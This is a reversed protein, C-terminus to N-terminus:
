ESFICQYPFYNKLAIKKLGFKGSIYEGIDDVIFDRILLHKQSRYQTLPNNHIYGSLPILYENDDM